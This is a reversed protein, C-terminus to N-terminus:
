QGMQAIVQETIDAVNTPDVYVVLGLGGVGALEGDLVLTYGNAQSVAAVAANIDTVAPQSATQIDQTYRNRTEEVTRVLLSARQREENSLEANQSKQQLAQLEELLPKLDADRQEMLAAAAQGAPHAKLLATTNVFAMKFPQQALALSVFSLGFFVILYLAIKKM